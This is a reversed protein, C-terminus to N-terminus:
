RLGDSQRLDLVPKLIQAVFFFKSPISSSSSELIHVASILNVLQNRFNM